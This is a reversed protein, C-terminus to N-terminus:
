PKNLEVTFFSDIMGAVEVPRTISPVHGAGPILRLVSNPLRAALARADSVPVLADAEGHIVLAPLNIESARPRLDIGAVSEYLRIAAAPGSRALIQRGWRRFAACDPESEPVCAAVFSDITAAFNARLGAAFPTEGDPRPHHILGGVIALGGFREPRQLAALLAVTAGASEAALVPRDLGLADAIAFVDDVMNDVTISEVPAVTTGTGRHDYAAARWTRSLVALTPTWVEWSGAWGGLALLERPGAGFDITFFQSDRSNVFM